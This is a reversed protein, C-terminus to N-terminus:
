FNHYHLIAKRRPHQLPGDTLQRYALLTSRNVPSSSLCPTGSSTTRIGNRRLGSYGPTTTGTSCRLGPCGPPTGIHTPWTTTLFASSVAASMEPYPFVEPKPTCRAISGARGWHLAAKDQSQESWTSYYIVQMITDRFAAATADQAVANTQGGMSQLAVAAEGRDPDPTSLWDYCTSVQQETYCCKLYAAKMKLRVGPTEQLRAQKIM